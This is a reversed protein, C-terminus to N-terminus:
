KTFYERHKMLQASHLFVYTPTSTYSWWDQTTGKVADGTGVSCSSAHAEPASYSFIRGQRSYFWRDELDYGTAIGVSSDRSQVEYTLANLV